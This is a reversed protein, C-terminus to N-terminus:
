RKPKYEEPLAWLYRSVTLADPEIGDVAWDNYLIIALSLAKEDSMIKREERLIRKVLLFMKIFRNENISAPACSVYPEPQFDKLQLPGRGHLLWELSVNFEERIRNLSEKEPTTEGSKWRTIARQVGIRRNFEEQTKLDFREILKFLREIFQQLYHPDKFDTKETM